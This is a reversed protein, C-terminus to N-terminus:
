FINIDEIPAAASDVESFIDEVATNLSNQEAAIKENARAAKGIGEWIKNVIANIESSVPNNNFAEIEAQAYAKEDDTFEAIAANLENLREKAKAEGLAKELADREEFLEKYKKNLEEYDKKVQEFAAKIEESSAEIENKEAVANELAKNAEAVKTECEEKNKNIESVHSSMEEVVQSVLAKIELKDM